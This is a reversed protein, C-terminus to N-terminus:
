LFLREVWEAVRRRLTHRVSTKEMAVKQLQRHVRPLVSPTRAFLEQRARLLSSLSPESSQSM